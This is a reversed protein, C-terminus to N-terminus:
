RRDRPRLQYKEIKYVLTRRSIGLRRAARTQNGNEAALAEEITRQEVAEVRVRIAAAGAPAARTRLAEPLHEPGVRDGDVVVLAHEVVNRLERVNGPWAHRELLVRADATLAARRGREAGLQRLFLEALLAIENPRERLPPITITFGALRFYLDARFTGAKIGQDLDRNTAAIVRVDVAIEDRGGVRMISRSELARLLKAQLDARLEGIEDLFLTGGHATEVLGLKRQEAGTFAGREHGFLESELLNPPLAGCNIRVFPAGARDSRAHIREAVVEKGVGTEGLLLVTTPRPAVRDVLRFVEAMAADAVVLGDVGDLAAPAAARPAAPEAVLLETDGIWVVDGSALPRAVGRVHERNLYTGNRGGLDTLVLAGERCAIRAHERSAKADDIPIAAGDGRGLLLDDGDRVDVVETAEGRRVVLHARVDDAHVRLPGGPGGGDITTENGM